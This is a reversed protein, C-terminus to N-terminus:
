LKLSRVLRLSGMRNSFTNWVLSNRIANWKKLSQKMYSYACAKEREETPSGEFCFGKHISRVIGHKKSHSQFSVKKEERNRNEKWTTKGRKRKLNNQTTGRKQRCHYEVCVSTWIGHWFVESVWMEVCQMVSVACQLVSCCVTVCQLDGCCACTM